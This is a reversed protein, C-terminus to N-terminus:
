TRSEQPTIRNLPASPLASTSAISVSMLSVVVAVSYIMTTGLGRM